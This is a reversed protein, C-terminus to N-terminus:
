SQRIVVVLNRSNNNVCVILQLLFCSSTSKGGTLLPDPKLWNSSQRRRGVFQLSDQGTISYHIFIEVGDRWMLIQKNM